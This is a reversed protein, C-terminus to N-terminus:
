FYGWGALPTASTPVNSFTGSGSNSDKVIWTSSSSASTVSATATVTPPISASFTASGGVAPVNIAPLNARGDTGTVQTTTTSGGSFTYGGSLTVTVSQGATPVGGVTVTVYAGTITGCATGNYTAKDFALATVGSASAIPAISAAAIVPVSWAAGTLITRRSPASTRSSSTSSTEPDRSM